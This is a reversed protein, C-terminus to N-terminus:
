AGSAVSSRTVAARRSRFSLLAGFLAVVAGALVVWAGLGITVTNISPIPTGNDSPNAAALVVLVGWLAALLAATVALATGWRREAALVLAAFCLLLALLLTTVIDYGAYDLGTLTIAPTHNAFVVGSWPMPLAVALLLGGVLLLVSASSMHKMLPQTEPSTFLVVLDTRECADIRNRAM